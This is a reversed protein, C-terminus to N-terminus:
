VEKNIKLANISNSDENKEEHIYSFLTTQKADKKSKKNDMKFHFHIM